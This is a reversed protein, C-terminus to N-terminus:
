GLYAEALTLDEPTTIKINRARGDYTKVRVGLMEVMAADDTVDVTIEHHARLLLGYRFVQPTQVAVYRSRDLTGVVFGSDVEKVTDVLPLVPIAAGTERAAEWGRSVMGPRLLPRGGDHIAVWDCHGINQLGCHVSDQRRAGGTCIAVVKTWSEFEVLQRGQEINADSMVLAIRSVDWCAEFASVAHALLPRGAVMSFLKDAGQMRRGAGAAVIIAGFTESM